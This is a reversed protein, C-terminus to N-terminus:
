TAETKASGERQNWEWESGPRPSMAQGLKERGRTTPCHGTLKTKPRRLNPLASAGRARPAERARRREGAEDGHIPAGSDEQEAAFSGSPILLLGSCKTFLLLRSETINQLMQDIRRPLAGESGGGAYNM